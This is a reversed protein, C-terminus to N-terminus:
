RTFTFTTHLGRHNGEGEFALTAHATSLASLFAWLETRTTPSQDVRVEVETGVVDHVTRGQGDVSFSGGFPSQPVFGLFARARRRGAATEFDPAEALGRSLDEYTSRALFHAPASLDELLGAFVRALPADATRRAYSLSVQTADAAAATEPGAQRIAADIRSVLAARSLGLILVGNAIAYRLAFTEGEPRASAARRQTVRVIPIGAHPEDSGWEAMGAAAQEAFIRVATLTAALALGDAVHAEAFVPLRGLISDRDPREPFEISRVKNWAVNADWVANRDLLGVRVWDGM